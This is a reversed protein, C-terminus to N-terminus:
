EGVRLIDEGCYSVIDEVEVVFVDNRLFVPRLTLRKIDVQTKSGSPNIQLAISHQTHGHPEFEGPSIVSQRPIREEVIVDVDDSHRGVGQPLRVNSEEILL